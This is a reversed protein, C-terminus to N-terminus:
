WPAPLGSAVAGIEALQLLLDLKLVSLSLEEFGISTGEVKGAIFKAHTDSDSDDSSDEPEAPLLAPDLRATSGRANGEISRILSEHYVLRERLCPLTCSNMSSLRGCGAGAAGVPRDEVVAGIEAAKGKCCILWLILAVQASGCLFIALAQHTVKRIRHEKPSVALMSEGGGVQDVWDVTEKEYHRRRARVEEVLFVEVEQRFINGQKHLTVALTRHVLTRASTPRPFLMVIGGATFGIMVLLKWGLAIGVSSNLILPFHTDLWSYGVVFVGIMTWFMMQVPPAAIRAFVYPATFVATVVVVAYANGDGKRPAAVYWVVMGNLLGLATGVLRTALGFLQDGAFTTLGMQGMILAWLGKNAYYFWATRPM